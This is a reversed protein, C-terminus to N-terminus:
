VLREYLSAIRIAIQNNALHQKVIEDRGGTRGTFTFSAKLKDAIAKKDRETIYCGDISEIRERVDGVDVSVIPCGCAMAEKIVQPSGETHSTMLLVDVAQMLTAVQKRSYGKLEIMDAEPVLGMAEKALIVNKVHNDYAGSFLVYNKTPDLGMQRRAEAKEIMPYDELNIGCPILAYNNRRHHVIDINKQSVFINFRSKRIAIQSLKLVKPNNIDSGHYTTIVPVKRQWNALVGCLGYHAHLLDPSCRRIERKLEPLQRLYGILGNRNVGFFFCDVGQKRLAEVQETIFPAYRGRKCRAIVLVRM